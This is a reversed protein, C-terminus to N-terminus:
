EESDDPELAEYAQQARGLIREVEETLSQINLIAQKLAARLRAEINDGPAGAGGAKASPGAKEVDLPM